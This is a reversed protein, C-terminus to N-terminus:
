NRKNAIKVKRGFTKNNNVANKALFKNFNADTKSVDKNSGTFGAMAKPTYAKIKGTSRLEEGERVGTYEKGLKGLYKSALKTQKIEANIDKKSARYTAVKEKDGAKRAEKIGSKFEAKDKRLVDRSEAITVSPQNEFGGGFYAKAMKGERAYGGIRSEKSSKQEVKASGLKMGDGGSNFVANRATKFRSKSKYESKSPDQWNPKETPEARESMRLPGTTKAAIKGPKKLPLRGVSLDTKKIEIEPIPPTPKPKKTPKDLWEHYTGKFGAYSKGSEGKMPSGSQESGYGKSVYVKSAKLGAREEQGSQSQEKNWDALEKESLYRGGGQFFTTMDRKGKPENEKYFKVQKNYNQLDSEYKEKAAKNSAKIEENKSVDDWTYQKKATVKVEQQTKPNDGNTKPKKPDEGYPKRGTKMLAM